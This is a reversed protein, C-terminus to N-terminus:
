RCAAALADVERAFAACLAPLRPRLLHHATVTLTHSEGYTTFMTLMAIRPLLCSFVTFEAVPRGCLTLPADCLLVNSCSTGGAVRARAVTLAVYAHVGAPGRGCAFRTIRAAGAATGRRKHGSMARHTLRLREVPDEAEVPLRLRVASVLNGLCHEAALAPRSSVPVLCRVGSPGPRGGLAGPVARLAGAFAALAVDNVTVPREPLARRAATVTSRAVTVRATVRRPAPLPVRDRLCASPAWCRLAAALGRWSGPPRRHTVDPGGDFATLAGPGEGLLRVLVALSQADLLAHHAGLVVAQRAGDHVLVVEWPPGGPEAPLCRDLQEAVADDLEEGPRLWRESVPVPFRDPGVARWRYRGHGGDTAARLRLRAVGAWAESVRATLEGPSLPAGTLRLLAAVTTPTGQREQTAALLADEAPMRLTGTGPPSTRRPTM